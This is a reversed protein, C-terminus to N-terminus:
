AVIATVEASITAQKGDNAFLQHKYYYTGAALPTDIYTHQNTDAVAIVAIADAWTPTLGTSAYRYIVAGWNSAAASLKLGLAIQRTGATAAWTDLTGTTATEAPPDTTSPTKANRWRAQNNRVYANFTSINMTIALTAWSQKPTSGLAKWNQTLFKFMARVATQGKSKPNHPTVLARAYNRGKWKSFTLAGGISGSADLSMAPANVKVM